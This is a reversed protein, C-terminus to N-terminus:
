QFIDLGSCSPPFSKFFGCFLFLSGSRSWVIKINSSNQNITGSVTRYIRKLQLTLNRLIIKRDSDTVCNVNLDFHQSNELKEENQKINNIAKVPNLFIM